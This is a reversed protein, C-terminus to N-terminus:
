RIHKNDSGRNPVVPYSRARGSRPPLPSSSEDIVRQYVGLMEQAARDWSFRQVNKRGADVLRGRLPEDLIIAEIAGAMSSPDGPEVLLAGDGAVEPIAGANTSVVPIGAGMAELIPLGFGEYKSPFALLEAGALLDRKSQPDVYGPRVIRDGCGLEEITETLAETAWGDPGVIALKIEPVRTWVETMAKVLGIHDKRPEITGLALVYPAGVMSRGAASDGPGAPDPKYGNAVLHVRESPLNIEAQLEDAVFQSVVHVHAGGDIARRLHDPYFQSHATVMQPFRWATLDHVTVLRAADGAPPVVYNPGHVLDFGSVTPVDVSRWLRHALRAPYPLPHPWWGDPIVENLEGRGRVSVVYGTWEIEGLNRGCSRDVLVDRSPSGKAALGAADPLRATLERVMTGVGTVPGLLATVDM